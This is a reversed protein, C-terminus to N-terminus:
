KVRRVSAGLSLNLTVEFGLPETLNPPKFFVFFVVTAKDIPVAQVYLDTNDILGDIKLAERIMEEGLQGTERTNPKGLLDELNAAILEGYWEPDSSKLRCFVGQATCEANHVLAIDGDEVVLDGDYTIKLDSEDYRGM